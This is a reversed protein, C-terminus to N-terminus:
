ALYMSWWVGGQLVFRKTAIDLAKFEGNEDELINFMDAHYSCDNFAEKIKEVDSDYLNDEERKLVDALVDYLNNVKNTMQKRLNDFMVEM